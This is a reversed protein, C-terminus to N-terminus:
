IRLLGIVAPPYSRVDWRDPHPLTEFDFHRDAEVVAVSESPARGILSGILQIMETARELYFNYPPSCFVAWADAGTPHDRAWLFTDATM